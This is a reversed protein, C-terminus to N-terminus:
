WMQRGVALTTKKTLDVRNNELTIEPVRGRMEITVSGSRWATGAPLQLTVTATKPSLDVPAKLPRVAARALVTGASDRLVVHSAPADAAGVSHVTVTMQRGQVKVDGPDIGLDPRSWYSIGRQVLRFRLTTTTRPALTLTWRRSREFERTESAAGGQHGDPTVEWTGPEVEAGTMHATVPYTELNYAVVTFSEPTADRVLIAVSRATAPAGFQWSVINGPYVRTRQLLVGGLRARQLDGHSFPAGGGDGVRDIWLSGETNIYERAAQAEIRAAHMRELLTTDGTVQWALHRATSDANAAAGASALQAGFRERLQLMDLANSNIAGIGAAGGDLLPQLYKQDGTWRYAAWFMYWPAEGFGPLERDTTFEINPTTTTRGNAAQRRHALLGDAAELVLRRIEPSGNFRVLLLAPQFVHYSRATSRGWVGGEAMKSGSYYNSRVHRHGAANVATLWGLRKATVMAREILKPSGANMLMSQGLVNIGDEYSHLEDYQGANLGNTWLGQDFTAELEKAVSALIPEQPAGMAALGPFLDSLDSDDSLGGGFEGNEIQRRDIYWRVFRDFYALDTVQLHAWAPVGDPAPPLTFPPKAQEKNADYWYKRGQDNQPDVRLLDTMDAYFRNYANLRESSVGEEVMNAYNDRVQTLRDAVHEAKAEAYPKFVLRVEMGELAGPGFDAGASAITLYLSRDNPLIRDRTDLFVTRAEGPTVAFSVDLMNRTPWLPDKVHVNIPIVGGRVPAVSLAPLDIAIGDLGGDMNQWGYGRGRTETKMGRYNFPILVHVLPLGAQATTAPPIEDPSGGRGGPGLGAAPTAVMVQREGTVHRQAIFQALAALAPNDDASRRGSVRYRLQAIGQPENGDHMYYASLEGIPTEQEVNTFQLRGAGLPTALLHVTKEQRAPRQLLTSYTRASMADADLWSLEGWAGGSISLYNWPEDPLMFTVSQGSLSYADWDPLQFYDNRGPLRSRNYVGPWTTERIGDTGRWWWRKLDYVDHIEVKRIVTSAATLRPPLDDDRNWGHRFAWAHQSLPTALSRELGPLGRLGDGRALSAINDDSLMRDHIRLEDLDGGRSFNYTSEVGTPGVLRQNPGFQDLGADFMGTPKAAAVEKGNVYLRIGVTEDWSVALHTWQDPKPFDTMTYSVRTRGLNVDTVFADFGHGNYDLRLWVMDWSSHDAYGIRFIPFETADVPDRSRWFFSLTGRQAYVNGPAWYSLLQGDACQLYAGKVGGPVVTVGSAFNPAPDRGAAYDATLGTDGTLSFLLGPDIAPQAAAPPRVVLLSLLILLARQRM